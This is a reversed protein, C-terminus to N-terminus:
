TYGFRRRHRGTFGRIRSVQSPTLRERWREDLRVQSSSELRMEGGIMHHEAARFDVPGQQPPLDAFRAIRGLESEVDRCLDEYRVRLFRDPAILRELRRAHGATRTWYRLGSLLSNGRSTWSDVFGLSDRVLHIVRLDFSTLRHFYRARAAPKSADLFVRKGTVALVSDVFAENRRAKEELARRWAPVSMVARDRLADLTNSRLPQTLLQYAVPHTSLRFRLDWRNPGFDFGRAEMEAGVRRWFDCEALTRGCSCPYNRQDEWLDYPGTAESVSAIQPHANLLFALLTSGSYGTGVVFLM